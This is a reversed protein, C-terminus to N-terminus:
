FITSFLSDYFFYSEFYFKRFTLPNYKSETLYLGKKRTGPPYSNLARLEKILKAALIDEEITFLYSISM